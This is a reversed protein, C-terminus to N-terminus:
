TTCTSPMRGPTSWQSCQTGPWNVSWRQASSNHRRRRSNQDMHRLSTPSLAVLGTGAFPGLNDTTVPPTVGATTPLIQVNAYAPPNQIANFTVNGFNREYSIGYGGRFSTKGDGFIDYAFGVRPGVDGYRRNWFGGVPSHPTTEVSGSAIREYFTAGPGYYFNSDLNQNDNHQVGFYEYRVGYNFTFRPTVRWSDEAYAAWDQYRVCQQRLFVDDVDDYDHSAHNKGHVAYREEKREEQGERM